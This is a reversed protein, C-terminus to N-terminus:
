EAWAVIPTFLDGLEIERGMKGQERLLGVAHELTKRNPALGYPWPGAGFLEDMADIEDLLWPLQYRLAGSFRMEALCRRKAAECGKFLSEALWPQSAQLHEPMVLTTLIPFIGTKQWSERDRTAHDPFLPGIRDSRPLRVAFAADIEGRRLLPEIEAEPVESLPQVAIGHEQALLGRIWLVASDQTRATGIRKGVLDRPRVIGSTRNVAILGHCFSRLPFVPIAIFPFDGSAKRALYSALSMEVIECDPTGAPHLTLATSEVQVAGSALAEIRDYTGCAMRIPLKEM